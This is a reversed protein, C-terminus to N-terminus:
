ANDAESEKAAKVARCVRNHAAIVKEKDSDMTSEYNCESCKVRHNIAGIAECKAGCFPCPEPQEEEAELALWHAMVHIGISRADIGGCVNSIVCDKCIREDCWEHFARIREEATKYKEENTM